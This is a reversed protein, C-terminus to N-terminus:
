AEKKVQKPRRTFKRGTDRRETRVNRTDPKKNADKAFIDGRYIWVKVGIAGYLTFVHGRAYDIDARLTHAPIKGEALMETRAIEAGNLRGSVCVKVGKAGARKAQEIARKLVRRFPIRKQLQQAMNQYILEACLDPKQVETITLVINIKRNGYFKKKLEKKLEEVGAGGRGIIVGPKATHVIIELNGAARKIEIKAVGSNVFKNELYKRLITDEKLCDAFDKKKAFWKSSPDITTRIRFIKPNIKKGM